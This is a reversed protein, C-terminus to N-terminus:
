SGSLQTIIWPKITELLGLGEALFLGGIALFVVGSLRTLVHGVQRLLAMQKLLGTFLGIVLLLTGQGLGYVFLSTAGLAIDGRQSILALIGALFPTGCPSSAAGYIIGLGLPILGKYWRSQHRSADPLSTMWQPVPLTMWELLQAGIILSLGGVILQGTNGAWSQLTTNLLAAATGMTALTLSTGIIFLSINIILLSPRKTESLGGVYGILIPLMAVTCPLLTSVVGGLYSFGLVVPWQPQQLANFFNATLEM